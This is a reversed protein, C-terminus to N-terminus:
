KQLTTHAFKLSRLDLLGTRAVVHNKPIPVSQSTESGISRSCSEHYANTHNLGSM